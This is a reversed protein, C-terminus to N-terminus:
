TADILQANSYAIIDNTGDWVPTVTIPVPANEQPQFQMSGAHISGEFVEFQLHLNNGGGTEPVLAGGKVVAQLHARTNQTTFDLAKGLLGPVAGDTAAPLSDIIETDLTTWTWTPSRSIISAQVPWISGGEKQVDVKLGTNLTWSQLRAIAVNEIFGKGLVFYEGITPSPVTAVDKEVVFPNNTGDYLMVLQCETTAPTNLDAQITQVTLLGLNCTVKLHNATALATLGGGAVMERFWLIIPSGSSIAQGDLFTLDLIDKVQTTTFQLTPNQDINAIFEPDLSGASGLISHALGPDLTVNDLQDYITGQIDIAALTFTSM